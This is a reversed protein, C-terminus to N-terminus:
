AIGKGASFDIKPINMKDKRAPKEEGWRIINYDTMGRDQEVSIHFGLGVKQGIENLARVTFNYEQSEWKSVMGQTVGLFVAFEKQNMGMDIRRREIQASIQALDVITKIEAKSFSEAPWNIRKAGAMKEAIGM